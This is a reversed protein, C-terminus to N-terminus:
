LNTKRSFFSRQQESVLKPATFTLGDVLVKTMIKFQFNALANQQLNSMEVAGLINSIVMLLNYNLKDIKYLIVYTLVDLFIVNKKISFM